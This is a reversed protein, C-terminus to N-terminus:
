IKVENERREYAKIIEKVLRSRVTDQYTFRIVSVGEIEDLIEQAEALGSDNKYKLDIQTPDGTIIAQSSEGLRTLFMKMQSKTANQAEDFIVVANNISRGRMYALPSIEITGNDHLIQAHAPTIIADMADYIPKLYPDLKKSLDGPLFGLSEGAEVVPRTIIIRNKKSSFVQKLAWAIAIFTKGTGAPGSAFVIQNDKLASLFREQNKSKPYISSNLIKIAETKKGNGDMLSEYEMFIDSETLEGKEAAVSSLRQFLPKFYHSERDTMVINGRVSLFVELLNEIYGLNRDNSGLILSVKDNDLLISEKM